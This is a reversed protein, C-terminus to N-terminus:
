KRATSSCCTNFSSKRLSLCTAHLVSLTTYTSSVLAQLNCMSFYRLLSMTLPTVPQICLFHAPTHRHDDPNNEHDEDSDLFRQLAPPDIAYLLKVDEESLQDGEPTRLSLVAWHLPMWSREDDVKTDDPFRRLFDSIPYQETYQPEEADDHTMGRSMLSMATKFVKNKAQQTKTSLKKSQKRGGRYQQFSCLAAYCDLIHTMMKDEDFVCADFDSEDWQQNNLLEETDQGEEICKADIFKRIADNGFEKFALTSM